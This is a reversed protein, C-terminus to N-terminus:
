FAAQFLRQLAQLLEQSEVHAPYLALAKQVQTHADQTTIHHRHNHSPPIDSPPQLFLQGLSVCM